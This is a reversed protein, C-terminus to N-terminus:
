LFFSLATEKWYSPSYTPMNYATDTYLCNLAHWLLSGNVNKEENLYM